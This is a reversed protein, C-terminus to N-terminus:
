RLRVKGEKDKADREIIVNFIQHNNESVRVRSRFVWEASGADKTDFEYEVKVVGPKCFEWLKGSWVVCMTLPDEGELGWRKVMRVGFIKMIKGRARVTKHKYRYQEISGVLMGDNKGSGGFVAAAHLEVDAGEKKHYFLGRTEAVLLEWHEKDEFEPVAFKMM